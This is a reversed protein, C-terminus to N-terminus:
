QFAWLSANFTIRIEHYNVNNRWGRGPPPVLSLLRASAWPKRCNRLMWMFCCLRDLWPLALVVALVRHWAWSGATNGV